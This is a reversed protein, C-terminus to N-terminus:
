GDQPSKYVLGIPQSFKQRDDRRSGDKAAKLCSESNLLLTWCMEFKEQVESQPVNPTRLNMRQSKIIQVYPYMQNKLWDVDTDTTLMKGGSVIRM